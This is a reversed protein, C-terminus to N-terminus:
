EYNWVGATGCDIQVPKNGSLFKNTKMLALQVLQDANRLLPVPCKATLVTKIACTTARTYATSTTTTAPVTQYKLVTQTQTSVPTPAEEKITSVRAALTSYITETAFASPADATSVDTYLPTAAEYYQTETVTFSPGAATVTITRTPAAGEVTTTEDVVITEAEATFLNTLTTVPGPTTETETVLVPDPTVFATSTTATAVTSTVTGSPTYVTTLDRAFHINRRRLTAPSTWKKMDKIYATPCCTAPYVMRFQVCNANGTASSVVITSTGSSATRQETITSPVIRTPPTTTQTEFVADPTVTAQVTETFYSTAPTYTQYITSTAPTTEVSPTETFFSTEPTFTPYETIEPPYTTATDTLTSYSADPTVTSDVYEPPRASEVTITAFQTPSALTTTEFATNVETVYETTAPTPLRITTTPVPVGCAFEITVLRNSASDDMNYGMRGWGAPWSNRTGSQGGGSPGYQINYGCTRCGGFTSCCTYPTSAVVPAASGGTAGAGGGGYGAYAQGGETTGTLYYSADADTGWGNSAGQGGGGAAYLTGGQYMVASAAGGRAWGTGRDQQQGVPPMGGGLRGYMSGPWVVLDRSASFYLPNVTIISGRQRNPDFPVGNLREGYTGKLTMAAYPIASPVTFTFRIDDDARTWSCVTKLAGGDIVCTAGPISGPAVCCRSSGGTVPTLTLGADCRQGFVLGNSWALLVLSLLTRM